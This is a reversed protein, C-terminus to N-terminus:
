DPFALTSFIGKESTGMLADSNLPFLVAVVLPSEHRQNPHHGRGLAQTGSHWVGLGLQRTLGQSGRRANASLLDYILHRHASDMPHLTILAIHGAPTVSVQCGM